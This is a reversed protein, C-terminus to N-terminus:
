EVEIGTLLWVIDIDTNVILSALTSASPLSKSNEIDSLSGQSVTVLLGLQILTLENGKRWLKLRPGLATMDPENM